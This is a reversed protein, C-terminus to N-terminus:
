MSRNNHSLFIDFLYIENEDFTHNEFSIDSFFLTILSSLLLGLYLLIENKSIFKRIFILNVVLIVLYIIAMEGILMFLGIPKSVLRIHYSFYFINFLFSAFLFIYSVLKGFYIRFCKCFRTNRIKLTKEIDNKKTEM